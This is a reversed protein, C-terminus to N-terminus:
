VGGGFGAVGGDGGIAVAFDGTRDGAFFGTGEFGTGEFGRAPAFGARFAGGRARLDADDRFGAGGFRRRYSMPM